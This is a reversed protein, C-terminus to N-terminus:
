PGPAPPVIGGDPLGCKPSPDVVAQCQPSRAGNIAGTITRVQPGFCDQSEKYMRQLTACDDGDASAAASAASSASRSASLPTAISGGQRANAAAAPGAGVAAASAASAARAAADRRTADDVESPSTDVKQAVKKYKEPVVDSVNTVGREDVWRYIDAASAVRWAGSALLAITALVIAGLSRMRDTASPHTEASSQRRGDMPRQLSDKSKM